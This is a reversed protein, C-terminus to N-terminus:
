NNKKKGKVRIRQTTRGAGEDSFLRLQGPLVDRHAELVLDIGRRIYAAVPVRTRESLAKLMEDQRAELYVTTAIKRRAM